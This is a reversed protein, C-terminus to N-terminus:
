KQMKRRVGALGILGLGLLAIISPEPVQQQKPSSAELSSYLHVELGYSNGGLLPAIFTLTGTSKGAGQVLADTFVDWVAPNSGSGNNALHKEDAPHSVWFAVRSYATNGEGPLTTSSKAEILYDISFSLTMNEVAYLQAMRHQDGKAGAIFSSLGDASAKASVSLLNGNIEAKGEAYSNSNSVSYGTPWPGTNDIYPTGNNEVGNLKSDARLYTGQFTPFIYNGNSITLTNWYVEIKTDITSLASATGAWAILSGIFLLFSLSKISRIM